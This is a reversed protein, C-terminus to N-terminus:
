RGCRASRTRERVCCSSSCATRRPDARLCDDILALNRTVLRLADPHIDVGKQNAIHFLRLLNIPKNLLVDVSEVNVRNQEVYFGDTTTQWRGIGPIM